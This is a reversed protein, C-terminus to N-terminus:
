QSSFSEMVIFNIRMSVWHAAQPQGEEDSQVDSQIRFHIYFAQFHLEDQNTGLKMCSM